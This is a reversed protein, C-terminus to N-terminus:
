LYFFNILKELPSIQYPMATVFLYTIAILVFLAMAVLLLARGIKM